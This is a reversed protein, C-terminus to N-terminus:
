RQMEWLKKALTQELRDLTHRLEAHRESEAEHDAALQRELERPNAGRWFRRCAIELTGAEFRLVGGPLTVWQWAADSATRFRCLGYSLVTAAPVHGAQVGFRGSADTGVFSVVDPQRLVGSPSVLSLTFTSM